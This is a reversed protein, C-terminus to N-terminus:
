APPPTEAQFLRDLDLHKLEAVIVRVAPPLRIGKRWVIYLTDAFSGPPESVIALRGAALRQEVALRPVYTAAVGAEALNIASDLLDTEVVVRREFALPWGDLPSPVTRRYLRPVIYGLDQWPRMPGPRGTIVYPTSFGQVWDLDQRSPPQLLLGIDIDGAAVGAETDDALLLHLRPTIRPYRPLLDALLPPLLYNQCLGVSGIVVPGQPDASRLDDMRRQVNELSVLAQRAETLLTEGAPTLGKMSHGREVLDTKFHEELRAIAHSLAQPTIHLKLAAAQYRGEEALVVFYRLWDPNLM